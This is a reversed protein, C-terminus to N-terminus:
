LHTSTTTKNKNSNVVWAIIGAVALIALGWGLIVLMLEAMTLALWLGVGLVLIMGILSGLNSM